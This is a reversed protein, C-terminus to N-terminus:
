TGLAAQAAGCNVTRGKMFPGAIQPLLDDGPNPIGLLDYFIRFHQKVQEPELTGIGTPPLDDPAVHYVSLRYSGDAEPRLEKLSPLPSPQEAGLSIWTLEEPVNEIHWVVQHAMFISRDGLEWMAQAHLATAKGAHFTIRSAVEDVSDEVLRREISKGGTLTTLDAVEASSGGDGSPALTTDASGPREGFVLAWGEMPRGKKESFSGHLMRVVHQPFADQHDAGHHHHSSTSPMLVHMTRAAEDRVFLCLCNIDIELTAM